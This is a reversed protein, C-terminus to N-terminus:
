FQEQDYKCESKSHEILIKSSLCTRGLLQNEPRCPLLPNCSLTVAAKLWLRAATRSQVCALLRVGHPDVKSHMMCVSSSFSCSLLSM